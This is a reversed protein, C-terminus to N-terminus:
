HTKILIEEAKKIMEKEGKYSAKKLAEDIPFWLAEDVEWDHNSVDGGEYKMLFFHVTKRCKTNEEKIYYWYTIEGLKEIITGKLGTEEAVERIATKEPVEGKDIIGKPLCWVNGGKVAVMAVEISDDHRRFIVGGSSVQTKLAAPKIM